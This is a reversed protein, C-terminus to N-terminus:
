DVQIHDGPIDLRYGEGRVAVLIQRGHTAPEGAAACLATRVRSVSKDIQEDGVSADADDRGVLAKYLDDRPSAAGGDRADRVLVALLGFDRKSLRVRAGRYFATFAMRNIALLPPEAMGRAERLLDMDLRIPKQPLSPLFVDDPAIVDIGREALAAIETASTVAAIMAYRTSRETARLRDLAGARKLASTSMALVLTRDAAIRGLLWLGPVVLDPERDLGAAQAVQKVFEAPRLRYTMIESALLVTDQAADVPCCAIPQDGTWRIPRDVAGCDCGGCPDWSTLDEQRDLVGLEVLRSFARADVSGPEPGHTLAPEGGESLRLLQSPLNM